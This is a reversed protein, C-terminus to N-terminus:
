LSRLFNLLDQKQTPSLLDFNEEVQTAESGSSQHNEIATILSTTRGDHLLFIRQSLGWLPATRFQDGGAGGQSVNDALRTGMHHIEIDSFANVPANSLSSTVSSAQTNGITPTHCNACGIAQFLARGNSISTAGGPTTSSPTPAALLRMFMAFAVVDSPISANTAFQDAGTKATFNTADEPYGAGSLNLCNSPLGRRMEEGPLPRDQTFIENSIGMEVNYAEGAFLELSKDQAKWGFRSITGDNGNHNFTGSIGFGNHANAEQNELLTSDDLNEILGAGFTPTPIRFIINNTAQAQAFSPQQLNCSGADARGSVTFITEVGGNPANPNPNGFPDFFFPFRAERTPGNRTIFSPITNTSGNVFGNAIVQFQPNSAPSSGGSAPQSHCGSCQVFNFRPGLGNNGTPSNSVSEIQNFRSLGNQFFQMSGDNTTVSPLPNGARAAGGQVGPDTQALTVGTFFFVSALLSALKTTKRGCGGLVAPHSVESPWVPKQFCKQM